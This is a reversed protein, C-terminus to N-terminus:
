CGPIITIKRNKCAVNAMQRAPPFRAACDAGGLDGACPEDPVGGCAAAFNGPTGAPEGDAVGV